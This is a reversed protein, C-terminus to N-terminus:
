KVDDVATLVVSVTQKMPIEMTEDPKAPNKMRMTMTQNFQAERVMGLAPDYWTTGSLAGGEIKMGLAQMQAAGAASGGLNKDLEMSLEGTETVEACPVGAHPAMGKVTYAGKISFTGLQPLAVNVAYPWSDGAKVAKGPLAKFAAQNFTQTLTEKNFMGKLMQGAMPNADALPKTLEEINEFDSIKGTEDVVLRLEKGAYAGLIKSVGMPDNAADPKASDFVMKQGAVDMNMAVRVYRVLLRKKKADEHPVVSTTMETTTAVKQDITQAGMSMRSEQQMQMTQSYRKGLNWRPKIEISQAFSPAITGALVVLAFALPRLPKM